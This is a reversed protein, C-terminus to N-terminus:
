TRAEEEDDHDDEAEAGVYGMHQLYMYTEAAKETLLVKLSLGRLHMRQVETGPCTQLLHELTQIRNCIPCKVDTTTCGPRLYGRFIGSQGARLRMIEVEAARTPLSGVPYHRAGTLEKYKEDKLTDEFWKQRRAASVVRKVRPKMTKFDTHRNHTGKESYANAAWKALGDALENGPLGCHAPVYQLTITMGAWELEKLLNWVLLEDKYVAAGPGRQLWRLVSQSDTLVNLGDDPGEEAIDDYVCQLGLRLAVLEAKFSTCVRGASCGTRVDLQRGKHTLFVGAGGKENGDASGDTYLEYNVKPMAAIAEKAAKLKGAQDDKEVKTVLDPRIDIKFEDWPPVRLEEFVECPGIPTKEVEILLKHERAADVM